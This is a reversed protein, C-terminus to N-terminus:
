GQSGVTLTLFVEQPEPGIKAIEAESGFVETALELPILWAQMKM